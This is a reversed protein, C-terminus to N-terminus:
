GALVGVLLHGCPVFGAKQLTRRSAVNRVNCRAAPVGGGERCIRKLEQVLYVGLGRRRFPEAVKMYVDGYPPNYHYLVGGAGAIEDDLMLVWAAAPDLDHLRLAGSDAPTVARVSAGQAPHHTPGADEFLISESRVDRAFTHLMTTLQPDNSQTEIAVAGCMGLLRECLDFARTRAAPAVHFEYLTPTTHWPGGVALSAYGIPATDLLLLYERSWGPREHIADHIIQCRMELRYADRLTKIDDLAAPRVEIAM